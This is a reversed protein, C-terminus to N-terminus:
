RRDESSLHPDLLTRLAQRARHVRTKAAAPTMALQEATQDVTLGEVDRLLLVERYSDPLEEIKSRVLALLERQEIGSEPERKWERPPNEHHGDDKFAPLLESIPREPRRGRTRLRMLCANVTIRHLWTMLQSRGDFSDLGRFASLFADQVCDSADEESTLMRRAVAMM